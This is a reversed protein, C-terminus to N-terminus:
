ALHGLRRPLRRVWVRLAADVLRHRLVGASDVRRPAAERLELRPRRVVALARRVRGGQLPQDLVTDGIEDGDDPRRGAGRRAHRGGGGQGAVRDVAVVHIRARGVGAVRGSPADVRRAVAVVVDVAREVEAVLANPADVLRVVAEAKAVIGTFHRNAADDQATQVGVDIAIIVVSTRDIGAVAALTQM